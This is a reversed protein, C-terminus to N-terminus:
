VGNNPRLAIETESLVNYSADKTFAVLVYMDKWAMQSRKKILTLIKVIFFKNINMVGDFAIKSIQSLTPWVM